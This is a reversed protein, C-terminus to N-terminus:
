IDLILWRFKYRPQIDEFQFSEGGSFTGILYKRAEKPINYYDLENQSPKYGQLAARCIWKVGQQFNEVCGLGKIFCKGLDHQAPAYGQLASQYFLGVALEQNLPLSHKELFYWSGMLYQAPAYSIDLSPKIWDLIKPNKSDKLKESIFQILAIKSSHSTFRTAEIFYELSISVDQHVGHGLCYCLGLCSLAQASDADAPNIVNTVARQFWLSAKEYDQRLEIGQYYRLGARTCESVSEVSFRILYRFLAVTLHSDLYTYKLEKFELLVKSDLTAGTILSNDPSLVEMLSQHDILKRNSFRKILANIFQRNTFLNSDFLSKVIMQGATLETDTERPMSGYASDHASTTVESVKTTM